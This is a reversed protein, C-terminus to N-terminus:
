GQEDIVSRLRRADRMECESHLCDLHGGEKSANSSSELREYSQTLIESGCVAM